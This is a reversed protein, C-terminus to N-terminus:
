VGFERCIPEGIREFYEQAELVHEDDPVIICALLRQQHVRPTLDYHATLTLTLEGHDSRGEYDVTVPMPLKAIRHVASPNEVFIEAMRTHIDAGAHLTM